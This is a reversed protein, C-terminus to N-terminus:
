RPDDLRERKEMEGLLFRAGQNDNPNLSLLREFIARAEDLEGLELNSIGLGHLCRLFPRNDIWGWPLVGDFNAGLSLEGIAVGVAYARKAGHPWDDFWFCGIHAYADLCRLDEALLGVLLGRARDEQGSGNLEVARLIDDDVDDFRSGPLVQQMEFAQRPGRELIRKEWSELAAGDEFYLEEAPDFLGCDRLALPVLGLAEPDVREGVFDASLVLGKAGEKWTRPEVVIIEGPVMSEASHCRLTLEKDQGLVRCRAVRLKPELVILELSERNRNAHKHAM